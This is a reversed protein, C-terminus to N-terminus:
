DASEDTDDVVGDTIMLPPVADRVFEADEVRGLTELANALDTQVDTDETTGADIFGPVFEAFERLGARTGLDCVYGNNDFLMYTM